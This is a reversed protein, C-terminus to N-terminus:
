EKNMVDIWAGNTAIDIYPIDLTQCEQVWKKVKWPKNSTDFIITKFIYLHELDKISKLPPTEHIILYDIELPTHSQWLASEPGYLVFRKNYFLGKKQQYHLVTTSISDKLNYITHEEIGLQWHHNEQAFSCSIDDLHTSDVLSICSKGNIFSLLTSKRNHYICLLQQQQQTYNQVGKYSGLILLATLTPFAWKLQRTLCLALTTIIISYWLIVQWPALWFGEWVALPLQQIMFILSNMIWIIAYLLYGIAMGVFPINGLLLLLLGISLIIGALATVVVGSLWFFMPFQHFYYLGIPFTAIQAALSLAIGNWFWNVLRQQPSWWAYIKPHLYVIGILALYSLQFGVNYLMSPSLCLLVFASAGLSNYVNMKRKSLQGVLVFSFMTAARLVSPSAGTLGVFSWLIALILLGKFLHWWRHQWRILGLLFTLLGVLIGIHLGSVALVHMAGTDAYANRLSRSLEDKSGLILAAAVAYENPTNLHKKIINLFYAKTQFIYHYFTNGQLSDLKGWHNNPIYTQHYIHQQAYFTRMDFAFPNKPAEIPNIKTQFVLQDGYNLALSKENLKIYALINGTCNILRNSDLRCSQLKLVTKLSNKHLKLPQDVTAIYTKSGDSLHQQIHTYSQQNDHFFALAIGTFMLVIFSWIGWGRIWTISAKPKTFLLFLLCLSGSFLLMPFSIDMLNYSLIGIVLPILLRVFPIQHWTM